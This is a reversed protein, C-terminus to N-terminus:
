VRLRKFSPPKWWERGRSFTKDRSGFSAWHCCGKNSKNSEEL